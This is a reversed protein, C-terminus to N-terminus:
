CLKFRNVLTNLRNALDLLEDSVVSTRKADEATHDALQAIHSVNHSINETVQCQEQAAVEMQTNLQRIEGVITSIGSLNAVSQEIQESRKQASQRATQMANVAQGADQQLQAIISQIEQTSQHSRNALNRVEDAVVAFGRGMEGARAAEIAANLALLNTQEAIGQIVDLVSGVENSRNALQEIVIAAASIEEMLQGIGKIVETNIQAGQTAQTDASIAVKAAKQASDRVQNATASLQNIATAVSDTESQQQQVASVTKNVVKGIETASDNLQRTTGHVEQISTYFKEAMHNFSTSVRGIEDLSDVEVRTCLDSQDAICGMSVQLKQIRQSVLSRFLWAFVLLGVGFLVGNVLLVKFMNTHLSADLQALSMDMRVAGLVTGEKVAHCTLCNTGRYNTEAKVPRIITLRRGKASESFVKIDDGNLSREDLEDKPKEHERTETADLLPDVGKKRLIRTDLVNDRELLKNRLVDRQAMTGTLMMTNVSDFYAAITDELQQAVLDDILKQENYLNILSSVGFVALFGATFAILIKAQISMTNQM